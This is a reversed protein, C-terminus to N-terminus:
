SPMLTAPLVPKRVGISELFYLGHLKSALADPVHGKPYPINFHMAAIRMVEPRQFCLTIGHQKAYYKIVGIAQPADMKSGTQQVQRSRLRWDEVVITKIGRTHDLYDILEDLTVTGSSIEKGADTFLTKGINKGPDIALLTM